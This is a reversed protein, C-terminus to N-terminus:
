PLQRIIALVGAALAALLLSSPEPVVFEFAGIDFQPGGTLDGNQPRSAGLFDILPADHPSGMDIAPSISTLQYDGGALDVLLPDVSLNGHMGTQDSIMQYNTNNGYVLNNEFTPNNAETGFDVTLGVNNSVILNNRIEYNSSDVRRDVRLATANNVFTNNIVRPNTSAPLTLNISIGTNNEFINNAILPSSNNILSIVGGTFGSPALQDRFVNGTIIPSAINGQIAPTANPNTAGDFINGSIVTGIGFVRLGCCGAITFGSVEAGGSINTIKNGALQIRTTEPGATSRLAVQKPGLDIAENYTGPAVLITDGDASAGIADQITAFDGPVNLINPKASAVSAVSFLLLLGLLAKM